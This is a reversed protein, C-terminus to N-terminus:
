PAPPTEGPGPKRRLGALKEAVFAPGVLAHRLNDLLAPRNKEHVRHGYFQFIWGGIFAAWPTWLPLLPGLAACVALFGTMLFGVRADWVFYVPLLLAALPFPSGIQTWVVVAFVILPIGIMHSRQNGPTRHYAAYDASLAAYDLTKSMRADYSISARSRFSIITM